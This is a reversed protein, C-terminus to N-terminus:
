LKTKCGRFNEAEFLKWYVTTDYSNFTTCYTLEPLLLSIYIFFLYCKDNVAHDLIGTSLVKISDTNIIFDDM